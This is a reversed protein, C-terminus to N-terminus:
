RIACLGDCAENSLSGAIRDLHLKYSGTAKTAAIRVAEHLQKRVPLEIASAFSDSNEAMAALLGLRYKESYRTDTAAQLAGAYMQLLGSRAQILGQRRVNTFEAPKLSAVFESMPRIEKSLCRLLFPQLERLQDQFTLVNRATLAVIQAQMKQQDLGPIVHAKLGFLMLSVSAKNAVDCIDLLSGLESATYTGTRLVKREDSVSRVLSLAEPTKLQSIEGNRQAADILAMLRAGANNYAALDSPTPACFTTSSYLAVSLLTLIRKM